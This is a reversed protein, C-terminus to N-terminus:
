EGVVEKSCEARLIRIVSEVNVVIGQELGDRHPGLSPIFFSIALFRRYDPWNWPLISWCCIAVCGDKLSAQFLAPLEHVMKRHVGRVAENLM